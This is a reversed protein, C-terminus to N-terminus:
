YIKRTQKTKIQKQKNTKTNRDVFRWPALHFSGQQNRERFVPSIEPNGAFGGKSGFGSTGQKRGQIAASCSCAQCPSKSM